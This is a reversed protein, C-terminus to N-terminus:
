VIETKNTSKILYTYVWMISFTPIVDTFPLAEELFAVVGAIKGAKGKYLKTMILGSLPAWVFDFPPFIISVYGLADLLLSLFLKPYKNM